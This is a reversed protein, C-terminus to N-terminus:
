DFYTNIFNLLLKETDKSDFCRTNIFEKKSIGLIKEIYAPYTEMREKLDNKNLEPHFQTCYIPKKIFRFAENKVKKSSALLVSERPLKIVVDEHGMQALFKNPLKKFIKDRQGEKTLWIETTGLEAKNLDNIVQDPHKQLVNESSLSNIPNM